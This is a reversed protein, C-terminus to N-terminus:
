NLYRLIENIIDKPLNSRNIAALHKITALRILRISNECKTRAKNDSALDRKERLKELACKADAGCPILMNVIDKHGNQAALILATNNNSQHNINVRADILM